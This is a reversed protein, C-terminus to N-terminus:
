KVDYVILLEAVPKSGHHMLSCTSMSAGDVYNVDGMYMHSPLPSWGLGRGGNWDLMKELTYNVLFDINYSGLDQGV